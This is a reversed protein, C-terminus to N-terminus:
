MRLAHVFSAVDTKPKKLIVSIALGELDAVIGVYIALSIPLGSKGLALLSFFGTFLFIGWIKSSWMHYSAECQFKLYDFIYRILELAVLIAL